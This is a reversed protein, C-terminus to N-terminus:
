NIKQYVHGTTVESSVLDVKGFFEDNEEIYYKNLFLSDDSIEYLSEIKKYGGTVRLILETKKLFEDDMVEYKQYVIRPVSIDDDINEVLGSDYAVLFDESNGIMSSDNNDLALLLEEFNVDNPVPYINLPVSYKDEEIEKVGPFVINKLTMDEDVLDKVNSGSFVSPLFFNREPNKTQNVVIGTTFSLIGILAISVKLKTVMQLSESSDKNERQQEEEM